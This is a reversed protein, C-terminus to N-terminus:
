RNDIDASHDAILRRIDFFYFLDINFSIIPEEENLEPTLRQVYDLYCGKLSTIQENEIFEVSKLYDSIGDTEQFHYSLFSFFLNIEDYGAIGKNIIFRELFRKHIIVPRRELMKHSVWDSIEGVLRKNM